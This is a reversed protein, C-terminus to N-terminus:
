EDSGEDEWARVTEALRACGDAHGTEADLPGYEPGHDIVTAECSPCTWAFVPGRGLDSAVRLFAAAPDGDCGLAPGVQAWSLGDERAYRVHDRIAGRAAAALASAATIGALPEPEPRTRGRPEGRLEPRDVMQAGTEIALSRVANRILDRATM